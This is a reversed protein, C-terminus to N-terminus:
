PAASRRELLKQAEKPSFPKALFEDAGAMLVEHITQDIAFDSTAIIKGQMGKKRALYIAEIGSMHPMALDMFVLDPKMTDILQLAQRGDQAKGVVKHPTRSIVAELYDCLATDDDAIVIKLSKKTGDKAM